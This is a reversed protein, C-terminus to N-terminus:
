ATPINHQQEGMEAGSADVKLVYWWGGSNQAVSAPARTEHLWYEGYPLYGIWYVGSSDSNLDELTEPQGDKDTAIYASSTDGKRYVTLTAGSLPVNSTNVKRLIVRTSGKVGNWYVYGFTLGFQSGDNGYLYSDTQNDSALDTQANRFISLNDVPIKKGDAGIGDPIGDHNEDVEGLRAFPMLQKKHADHEAWVWISGTDGKLGSLLVICAPDAGSNEALYIDQHATRYTMKGNKSDEDLEELGNVFNGSLNSIYPGETDRGGFEPNGSLYLRAGSTTLTGAELYVGAGKYQKGILSHNLKSDKALTLKGSDCVYVLGGNASTEVKRGDLMIYTLTMDASQKVKLM